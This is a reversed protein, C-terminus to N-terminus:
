VPGRKSIPIFGKPVPPRNIKGKSFDSQGQLTKDIIMADEFVPYLLHLCNPHFPPTQDLVPFRPDKGSISFTRAEYQQCIETTTNHNSVLVLDTNYNKAQVLAANAQAEHFKTRSVLEAYYEPTFTKSGAQIVREGKFSELLHAYEPSRSALVEPFKGVLNGRGFAEAVASDITWEQVIAQQTMRTIRKANRMGATVAADMSAAADTILANTIQATAPSKLIQSVSRRATETIKKTDEIVKGIAAMSSGYSRPIASGAYNFYVGQIERYRKILEEEVKRWYATSRVPHDIATLLIKSVEKQLKKMRPTITKLSANTATEFVSNPGGATYINM